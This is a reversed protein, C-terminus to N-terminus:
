HCIGSRSITGQQAQDNVEEGEQILQKIKEGIETGILKPLGTKKSFLDKGRESFLVIRDAAIDLSEDEYFVARGKRIIGRKIYFSVFAPTLSAATERSIVNLPNRKSHGITFSATFV